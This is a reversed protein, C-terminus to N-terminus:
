GIFKRQDNDSLSNGAATNQSQRRAAIQDYIKDSLIKPLFNLHALLQYHGGLVKAIETMAQSKVFYFSEPKWFYVAGYERHNLGREKLFNQGFGSQLTAFLFQDKRDKSLMWAVLSNCLRCEEDYLVYFKTKDPEHAM